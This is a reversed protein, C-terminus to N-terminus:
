RGINKIEIRNAAANGLGLASAFGIYDARRAIAPLSAGVRWQELRKL